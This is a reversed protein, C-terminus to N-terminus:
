VLSPVNHRQALLSVVQARTTDDHEGAFIYTVYHTHFASNNYVAIKEHPISMQIVDRTPISTGHGSFMTGSQSIGGWVIYKVGSPLGVANAGGGGTRRSLITNATPSPDSQLRFTINSNPIVDNLDSQGYVWLLDINGTPLDVSDIVSYYTRPAGAALKSSDLVYTGPASVTVLPMGAISEVTQPFGVSTSAHATGDWKAYPKTGDLYRGDYDGEVLMLDDWWVDGNGEASGNYIRLFSISNATNGTTFTAVVRTPGAINDPTYGPKYYVNLGVNDVNLRFGTSVSYLTGTLPAPLYRTGALTYKTNPKLTGAPVMGQIEAFSDPNGSNKAIVRISKSGSSKWAPSSVGMGHTIQSRVGTVSTAIMKSTSADAAGNWAYAYDPDSSVTSGDFYAGSHSNDVIFAEAVELIGDNVTDPVTPLAMYVNTSGIGDILASFTRRYTQWGAVSLNLVYPNLGDMVKNTASGDQLYVPATASAAWGSARYKLYLTYSSNATIKTYDLAGILAVRWGSQGTNAPSIYKATKIGDETTSQIGWFRADPYSGSKSASVGTPTVYRHLSTSAHATGSWAYTYDGTGTYYNNVISGYEILWDKFLISKQVNPDQNVQLDSFRYVADYGRTALGTSTTSIRRTEGPNITFNTYGNDCWDLAISVASTGDNAVTVSTTYPQFSILKSQTVFNRFVSGGTGTVATARSWLMGNYSVNNTLIATSGQATASGALNEYAAINGDFYPYLKTGTELLMAAMYAKPLGTTSNRIRLEHSTATAAFTHYIREWRGSSVTKGTTTPAIGSPQLEFGVSGPMVYIWASLTYNAGVTLGSVTQAAFVSAGASNSAGELYLSKTGMFSKETSQYPRMTGSYTVGAITQARLESNSANATGAWTATFAGTDTFFDTATDGEELQAADIWFLHAVADVNRIVIDASTATPGMLRSVTYRQWTNGAALAATVQTRGGGVLNGGDDWEGLEIRMNRGSVGYVWVSATYLQNPKVSARSVTYAGQNTFTGDATIRLSKSGSYVPSTDQSVVVSGGGGMASAWGNANTEFSPNSLLNTPAKSGDFFPLLDPTQELLFSDAYFRSGIPLSGGSPTLLYLYINGVATTTFTISTRQWSGTTTVLNGRVLGIGGGQAYAAVGSAGYGGSPLYIYASFTYTGIPFNTLSFSTGNYGNVNDLSEIALSKNGQRTYASSQWVASSSNNPGHVSPQPARKYSTSSNPAGSWVYQFDDPAAATGDYYPNLRSTEEILCWDWDITANVPMPNANTYPGVIFRASAANSPATVTTSGRIWSNAAANLNDSKPTSSITNSSSDVWQVFVSIPQAVSSKQYISATYTAGPIVPMTYNMGVDQSAGTNATTWTKRVSTGGAMGNGPSLTWTGAGGTSGFWRNAWGTTDTEFSPNKCLNLSTTAGDFFPQVVSSKELIMGTILYSGTGTGSQGSVRFGMPGTSSGTTYTWSLRQWSGVVPTTVPSSMVGSQAFAQVAGGSPLSEHYVWASMSYTSSASVSNIFLVGPNSDTGSYTVRVATTLGEPNAATVSVNPTITGQGYPSLASVGRPSAVLNSRVINYSGTSGEVGPNTCLNTRIGVLGATTEMAPNTILNTRMTTPAGASRFAPNTLLNTRVTMDKTGSVTELAPNTLLNRIPQSGANM